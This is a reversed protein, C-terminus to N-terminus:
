RSPLHGRACFLQKIKFSNVEVYSAQLSVHSRSVATQVTSYVLDVKISSDLFRSIGDVTKIVNDM